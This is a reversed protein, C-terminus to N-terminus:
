VNNDKQLQQDREEVIKGVIWYLNETFSKQWLAIAQLDNSDIKRYTTRADEVMEMFLPYLPKDPSYDSM